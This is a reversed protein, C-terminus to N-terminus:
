QLVRLKKLKRRLRVKNNHMRSENQLEMKEISCCSGVKTRVPCTVCWETLRWALIGGLEWGVVGKVWNSVRDSYCSTPCNFSGSPAFTSYRAVLGTPLHILPPFKSTSRCLFQVPTRFISSKHDLVSYLHLCTKHYESRDLTWQREKCVIVNTSRRWSGERSWKKM